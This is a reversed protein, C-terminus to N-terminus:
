QPPREATQPRVRMEGDPGWTRVWEVEGVECTQVSGWEVTITGGHCQTAYHIRAGRAHDEAFRRRVDDEDVATVLLLHPEDERNLTVTACWESPADASYPV